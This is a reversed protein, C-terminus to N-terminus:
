DSFHPFSLTPLANMGSHCLLLHKSANLQTTLASCLLLPGSEIQSNGNRGVARQTENLPCLFVQHPGPSGDDGQAEVFTISKLAAHSVRSWWRAVDRIKLVKSVPNPNIDQDTQPKPHLCIYCSTLLHSTVAYSTMCLPHVNCHKVVASWLCVSFFLFPSFEFGSVMIFTM